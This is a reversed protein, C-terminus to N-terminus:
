GGDFAKQLIAGYCHMDRAHIEFWGVPKFM